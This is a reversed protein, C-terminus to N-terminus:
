AAVAVAAGHDDDLPVIPVGFARLAEDDAMWSSVHLSSPYAHQGRAGHTGRIVKGWLKVSGFVLGQGAGHQRLFSLEAPDELAYIGCRCREHPAVHTTKALDRIMSAYPGDPVLEYGYGASPRVTPATLHPRRSGAFANYLRTQEFASRLDHEGNPVLVWTCAFERGTPDFLQDPSLRHLGALLSRARGCSASFARGPVWEADLMPSSLRQGDYKWARWLELPETTNAALEGSV